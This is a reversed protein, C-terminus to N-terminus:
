DRITIRYESPALAAPLPVVLRKTDGPDITYLIAICLQAAPKTYVARWTAGAREDITYSPCAGYGVERRSALNTVLVAVSDTAAYELRETTLRVSVPETAPAGCAI